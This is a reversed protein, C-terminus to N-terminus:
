ISTWRSKPLVSFLNWSVIKIAVNNISCIQSQPAQESFQWCTSKKEIWHFFKQSWDITIIKNLAKIICCRTFFWSKRSNESLKFIEWVFVLHWVLFNQYHRRINRLFDFIWVLVVCKSLENVTFSFKDVFHCKKWQKASIILESIQNSYIRICFKSCTAQHLDPQSTFLFLCVSLRM